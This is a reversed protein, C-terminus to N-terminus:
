LAPTGLKKALKLGTILAEFEAENNTMPFSFQLVYELTADELFILVIGIGSAM